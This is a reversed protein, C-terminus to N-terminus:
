REDHIFFLAENSLVNQVAAYCLIRRNIESNTNEKNKKDIRRNPHYDFHQWPLSYDCNFKWDYEFYSHAVSRQRQAIEEVALKM